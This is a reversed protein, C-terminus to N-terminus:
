HCLAWVYRRAFDRWWILEPPYPRNSNTAGLYLLGHGSGEAFHAALREDDCKLLLQGQPTLRLDMTSDRMM